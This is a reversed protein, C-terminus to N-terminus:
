HSGKLLSEPKGKQRDRGICRKFLADSALSLQNIVNKDFPKLWPGRIKVPPQCRYTGHHEWNYGALSKGTKTAL